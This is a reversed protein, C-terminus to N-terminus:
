TDVAHDVRTQSTAWHLNGVGSRFEAHEAPTCPSDDSRNKDRKVKLEDMRGNCFDKQLKEIQSRLETKEREHKEEMENFKESFFEILSKDNSQKKEKCSKLHKFKSQRHKFIKNCFECEYITDTKPQCEASMRSVSKKKRSVNPQCEASAKKNIKNFKLKLDEFSIDNLLPKCSKKRSFHSKMNCKYKSTYGCRKCLFM